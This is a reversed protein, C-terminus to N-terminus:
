KAKQNHQKNIIITVTPFLSASVDSCILSILCEYEEKSNVGKIGVKM